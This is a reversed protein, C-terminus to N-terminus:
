QRAETCKKWNAQRSNKFDTAQKCLEKQLKAPHAVCQGKQAICTQKYTQKQPVHLHILAQIFLSFEEQATENSQNTKELM